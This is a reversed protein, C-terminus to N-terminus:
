TSMKWGIKAQFADRLGQVSPVPLLFLEIVSTDLGNEKLRKAITPALAKLREEALSAFKAEAADADGPGVKGYGDFNFGILCTIVDYRKNSEEKMPDLFNLLETKATANLGTFDINRRVLSIEHDKAEDTLAKAISKAADSIANGVDAHLKAEGWYLYLRKTDSCYRAHVGDAGLVPANPNTKLAMKAIIQPAELVWETLLYLLLEGCEGNRGTAEAAKIFLKIAAQNLKTTEERFEEASIKQYKEDVLAIESRPLAFPTISLSIVEVLEHITANGQRFAPFHLRLTVGESDCTITHQHERLRASLKSHDRRLAAVISELDMEIVDSEVDGM